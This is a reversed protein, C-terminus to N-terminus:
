FPNFFMYIRWQLSLYSVKLTITFSVIKKAAFSKKYVVTAAKYINTHFDQLIQRWSLVLISQDMEHAASCKRLQQAGVAAGRRASAALLVPPIMVLGAQLSTNNSCNYVVAGM